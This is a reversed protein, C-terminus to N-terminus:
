RKGLVNGAMRELLSAAAGLVSANRTELDGHGCKPCRAFFEGPLLADSRPTVTQSWRCSPCTYVTTSPRIPM